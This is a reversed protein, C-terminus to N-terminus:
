IGPSYKTESIVEFEIEVNLSDDKDLYTEWLKALSLFRIHGWGKNSEEYWSNIKKTHCKSGQPDIVRLHARVHIKEDVMLTENDALILYFSLWKGVVGSEVKPYLKLNWNRGGMSFKNSLYYEEKLESFNKVSWSFKPYTFENNFSAVEWKTFPSVVMLDVGFECQEGEFTYGNKPEHFTDSSLVQPVGWMTRLPNFRKVEVDHISLYKKEKKSYILFTLYAFVETSPTSMLSTSDIEVYMSIFGSGNDAENGKPFIALRWNHGGSSFRRSEYKDLNLQSLKDIKLSYSSPPYDRWNKVITSDSACSGM